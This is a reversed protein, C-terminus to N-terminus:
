DTAAEGEAQEAEQASEEAEEVTDEVPEPELEAEEGDAADEAPVEPLPAPDDSQERLFAILNARDEPDSLGAFTMKTGPAFGRPSELFADLNAYDWTEGDAGLEALVDSYAFDPHDAIPHDVIDWIGPGTRNENSSTYDHCAQCRNILSKGAEASANQMRVAIPEVAPEASAESQGNGAEPEPLQYTAGRNEIPAYITEALFGIGMVFVLTGLIAGFIKNLEFSNM